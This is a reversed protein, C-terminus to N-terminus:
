MGAASSGFESLPAPLQQRPVGRGSTDSEDKTNALTRLTGMM